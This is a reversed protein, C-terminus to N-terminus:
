PSDHRIQRAATQGTRDWTGVGTMFLPLRGTSNVLQYIQKARNQIDDSM